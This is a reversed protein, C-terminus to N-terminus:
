MVGEITMHIRRVKFARDHLSRLLEEGVKRDDTAQAESVCLLAEQGSGCVCVCVCAHKMSLTIRKRTVMRPPHCALM